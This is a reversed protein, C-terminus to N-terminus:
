ATFRSVDAEFAGRGEHHRNWARIMLVVIGFGSLLLIWAVSALWILVFPFLAGRAVLDLGTQALM